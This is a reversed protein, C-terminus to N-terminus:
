DKKGATFLGGNPINKNMMQLQLQNQMQMQIQQRQALPMQALTEPTLAIMNGQVMGQGMMQQAM